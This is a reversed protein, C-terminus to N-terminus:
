GGLSLLPPLLFLMGLSWVLHTLIPGLVGGTVRRQAGTLLGLCLAAFTLLPVGTLLTSAAYLLASVPLGHRPPLAAYLAGRFFVEETIGTFATVVAVVWLEGQTGHRLLEQVPERLLPVRALVPAAACFLALLVIGLVLGQLVVRGDHRGSRTSRGLHLPGSALAGILWVAAVGLTAWHFLHHGPEIALTLGLAVTGVVLTVAVVIRRRAQNAASTEHERAVPEILAGRVFSRLEAVPGRRNGAARWERRGSEGRVRM